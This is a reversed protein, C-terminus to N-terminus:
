KIGIHIIVRNNAIYAEFDTKYKREVDPNELFYKWVEQWLEVAVQPM